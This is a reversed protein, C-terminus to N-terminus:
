HKGDTLAEMTGFLEIYLYNVIKYQQDLTLKIFHKEAKELMPGYIVM